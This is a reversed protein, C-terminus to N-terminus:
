NIMKKAGNWQGSYQIVQALTNRLKKKEKKKGNMKKKEESRVSNEKRKKEEEKKESICLYLTCKNVCIMLPM